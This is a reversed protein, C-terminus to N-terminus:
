KLIIAGKKAPGTANRAPAREMAPTASAAAAERHINLRLGFCIPLISIRDM